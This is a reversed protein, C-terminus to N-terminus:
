HQVLSVLIAIQAEGLATPSVARVGGLQPPYLSATAALREIAAFIVTARAISQDETLSGDPHGERILAALEAIISMGARSRIALFRQDGRDAEMNRIGLIARHRDWYARYIEFFDRAGVQTDKGARWAALVAHVAGLDESAERALALVVDSVDDFYVYFTASSTSAKRAIATATLSVASMTQLLEQAAAM